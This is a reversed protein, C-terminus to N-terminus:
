ESSPVPMVEIKIKATNYTTVGNKILFGRNGEIVRREQIIEKIKVKAQRIQKRLEKIAKRLERISSLKAKLADREQSAQTFEETLKNKEEKLATNEAQSLAIQLTLQEITKQANHFDADLQTFKDTNAKLEDKLTSNEQSLAKQLDKEKDTAQELAAVQGKAWNLNGILDYKEKLTLLYKFVCFITIGVLLASLILQYKKTRRIDMTIGDSIGFYDLM